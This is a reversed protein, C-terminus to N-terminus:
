RVEGVQHHFTGTVTMEDKREDDGDSEGHM